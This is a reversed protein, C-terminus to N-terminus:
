FMTPDPVAPPVHEIVRTVEADSRIGGADDRWQVVRLTCHLVDGKAFVEQRSDIRANFEPDVVFATFNGLGDTFRWRLGTEFPAIRITLYTERESDSLIERDDLSGSDQFAPLDEKFVEGAIGSDGWIRVSDIGTRGVPRVMAALPRRVQANDALRVSDSPITLVTGDAWTLQVQGPEIDISSTPPGAQGRKALFRIVGVIVAMLGALGETATLGRNLAVDAYADYFAKLQVLFSGRETGTINVQVDRDTPHVLRNLTQFLDAASLLAPALDRVDMEHGDLAPGNYEITFDLSDLDGTASTETM